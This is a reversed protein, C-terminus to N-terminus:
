GVTSEILNIEEETLHLKSYLEKESTCQVYPLNLLMKKEWYSGNEVLRLLFQVLKSRLFILKSKGEEETVVVTNISNQTPSFIGEMDLYGFEGKLGLRGPGVMLKAVGYLTPHPIETYFGNSHSFHFAPYESEEKTINVKQSHLKSDRIYSYRDFKSKYVKDLISLCIDDLGHPVFPYGDFLRVKGKFVKGKFESVIDTKATPETNQIVYWSFTSGVGKFYKKCENLNLYLVQNRRFPEGIKADYSAWATPSIFSLYGKETLFTLGKDIFKSYLNNGSNSKSRGNKDLEQFPPNGIVVDFKMDFEKELFSEEYINRVGLNKLIRLKFKDVECAHLMSSLIHDEKHYKKLEHFLAILFTGTGACPDLFRRESDKLIELPIRSIMEQALELPTSSDEGLYVSMKQRSIHKELTVM